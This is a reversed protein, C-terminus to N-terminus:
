DEDTWENDSEEPADNESLNLNLIKSYHRIEGLIKDRQTVEPRTRIQTGYRGSSEFTRGEERILKTLDHYDEYLQCLIILQQLHHKQYNERNIVSDIFLTWYKKFVAGQCPAKPKKPSGM